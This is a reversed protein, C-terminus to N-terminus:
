FLRWYLSILCSARYSLVLLIAARGTFIWILRPMWGTQDSDESDAHLFSPEKAVWQAYLSSQDFKASAWASRLRQRACLWKTPKTLDCSVYDYCLLGLNESLCIYAFLSSGSWIKGPATQDPDVNNVMGYVDKPHMVRHYLWRTWIKPHNCCIKWTDTKKPNKYYM